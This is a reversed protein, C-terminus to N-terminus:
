NLNNSKNENEKEKQNLYKKCTKLYCCNTSECVKVNVENMNKKGIRYFNIVAVIFSINANLLYAIKVLNKM